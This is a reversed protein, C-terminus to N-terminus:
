LGPGAVGAGSKAIHSGSFSSREGGQTKAPGRGDKATLGVRSACKREIHSGVTEGASGRESSPGRESSGAARKPARIGLKNSALRRRVVEAVAVVVHPCSFGPEKCDECPRLGRDGEKEEVPWAAERALATVRPSGCLTWEHFGWHQNRGPSGPKGLRSAFEFAEGGRSAGASCLSSQGARTSPGLSPRTGQRMRRDRTGADPAHAQHACASPTGRRPTRRVDATM